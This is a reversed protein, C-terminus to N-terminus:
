FSLTRDHEAILTVIETNTLFDAGLEGCSALVDDPKLGRVELSHTCICLRKIEYLHLTSIPSAASHREIQEGSQGTLLQYIGDDVFLVTVAQDLAAAVLAADLGERSALNTFPAHSQIFLLRVM